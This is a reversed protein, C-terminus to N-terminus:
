HMTIPQESTNTAWPSWECGIGLWSYYETESVVGEVIPGIACSVVFDEESEDGMDMKFADTALVGLMKERDTVTGNAYSVHNPFLRDLADVINLSWGKEELTERKM